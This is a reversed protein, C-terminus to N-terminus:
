VERLGAMTEALKIYRVRVNGVLQHSIVDTKYGAPLRFPQGSVVKETHVAQEKVFLTYEVKEVPAELPVMASAGNIPDTNIGLQGFSGVALRSTIVEQNLLVQADFLAYAESVEAPSMTGEWEILAAGFNKPQPLEISKSKWVFSNRSGYTGDFLYVKDSVLYLKGTLADTYLVNCDGSFSVLQVDESLDVRKLQRTGGNEPKYSIYLRGEAMRVCMSSPVLPTWEEVTYLNKTVIDNGAQGVYALGHRTSFVVGDGVSCVSQKSLCPWVDGTAQVTVAEPEVGDAIHPRNESCAVVTTGYAAIGVINSDVQYRYSLPWAHLQFPESYCIQNGVFGVASGNPLVILGRLGAPPPVWGETVLDDGLIQSDTQNDTWNATSVAREAVLQWSGTTGTTRYLRQKLGATNYPISRDNTPTGSFGSITWTGDVKGSVVASAKVPASEEGTAPQYNTYRYARDVTSGVGGTVSVAPQTAPAPIGLAYETTGFDSFKAYRPEAEGTWYYRPEVDPSLPGRIVDIDKDWTRWKETSAYVARYAAYLQGNGGPAYAISPIRTPRIEGSTLNVNEAIQAAMAPLLRESTRPVLGLFGTIKQASM